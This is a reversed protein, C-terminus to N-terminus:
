KADTQMAHLLVNACGAILACWLATHKSVLESGSTALYLCLLSTGNLLGSATSKPNAFAKQFFGGIQDM